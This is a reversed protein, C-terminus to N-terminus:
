RPLIYPSPNESDPTPASTLVQSSFFVGSTRPICLHAPATLVSHFMGRNGGATKIIHTIPLLLQCGEGAEKLIQLLWFFPGLIALIAAPQRRGVGALHLLLPGAIHTHTAASAWLLVNKTQERM